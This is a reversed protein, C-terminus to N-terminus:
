VAFYLAPIVPRSTTQQVCKESHYELQLVIDRSRPPSSNVANFTNDSVIRREDESVRNTNDEGEPLTM